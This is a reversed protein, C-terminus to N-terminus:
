IQPQSGVFAGGKGLRLSNIPIPAAAMRRVPVSVRLYALL